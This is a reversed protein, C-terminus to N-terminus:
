RRGSKNIQSWNVECAQQMSVILLLCGKMVLRNQSIFCIYVSASEM